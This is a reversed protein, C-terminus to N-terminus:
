ELISQRLNNIETGSLGVERVYNEVGGYREKLHQQMLLMTEPPCGDVLYSEATYGLPLIGLPMGERFYHDVVYRATLGYDGAITDEPVGAIGLLLASIIGTRDQGGVCHYIAPLVEPTALRKLIEGISSQRHDLIQSYVFAIREARVLDKPTDDSVRDGMMDYHYYSVKSSGAFVDSEDLTERITRLDIVTRIGYNILSQQSVTSLQNLNDSRVLTRRRTLRGDKTAYGGIDRMNYVGPLDLRTSQSLDTVKTHGIM